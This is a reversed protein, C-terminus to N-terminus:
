KLSRRASTSKTPSRMMLFRIPSTTSTCSGGGSPATMMACSREGASVASRSCSRFTAAKTVSAPVLVLWVAITARARSTGATTPTPRM